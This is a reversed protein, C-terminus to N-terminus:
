IGFNRNVNFRAASNQFFPYISGFKGLKDLLVPLEESIEAKADQISYNFQSGFAISSHNEYPVLYCLFRIGRGSKQFIFYINGKRIQIKKFLNLVAKNIEDIKSYSDIKTFYVKSM